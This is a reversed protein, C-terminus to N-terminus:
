YMGGYSNWVAGYNPQKGGHLGIEKGDVTAGHQRNAVDAPEIVTFTQMKKWNYRGIRAEIREQEAKWRTAQVVRDFNTQEGNIQSPAHKLDSKQKWENKSGKWRTEEAGRNFGAKGNGKQGPVIKPTNKISTQEQEVKIKHKWRPAHRVDQRKEVVMQSSNVSATGVNRVVFQRRDIGQKTDHSRHTVLTGVAQRQAGTAGGCVGLQRERLRHFEM